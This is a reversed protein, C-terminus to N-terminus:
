REIDGTEPTGDNRSLNQSEEKLDSFSNDAASVSRLHLM